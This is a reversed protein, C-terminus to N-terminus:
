EHRLAVAPDVRVSRLAPVLAAGLSACLFLGGAAAFTAPDEPRVGFLFAALLRSAAVAVATGAAIGLLTPALAQRLMLSVIRTSTAGLAVRVGIERHRQAVTYSVLGFIGVLALFAATAAFALLVATRFREATLLQWRVQAMTMAEVRPMGQELNLLVARAREAVAQAGPKTRVVIVSAQAFAGQEQQLSTYMQLSVEGDLRTLKFDPVIGVVRLMGTLGRLRKGVADQGPWLANAAARNIVVVRESAGVDSDLIQRGSVIPIGLTTFYGGGVSRHSLSFGLGRGTPQGEPVIGSWRM